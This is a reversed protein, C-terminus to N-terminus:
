RISCKVNNDFPWIESFLNKTENGENEFFFIINNLVDLQNRVKNQLIDILRQRFIRGIMHLGKELNKWFNGKGLNIKRLLM